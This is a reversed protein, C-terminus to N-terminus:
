SVFEAFMAYVADIEEIHAQLVKRENIGKILRTEKQYMQEFIERGQRLAERIEPSRTQKKERAMQDLRRLFAADIGKRPSEAEVDCACLIRATQYLKISAEVPKEFDFSWNYLENQIENEDEIVLYTEGFEQNDVEYLLGTSMYLFVRGVEIQIKSQSNAQQVAEWIQIHCEEIWANLPELNRHLMIFYRMYAELCGIEEQESNPANLYMVDIDTYVIKIDIGNVFKQKWAKMFEKKAQEFETQSFDKLYEQSCWQLMQEKTLLSGEPRYYAIFGESGSGVTGKEVLGNKLYQDLKDQYGQKGYLYQFERQNDRNTKWLSRPCLPPLEKLGFGKSEIIHLGNSNMVEEEYVKECREIKELAYPPVGCIVKIYSIHNRDNDTAVSIGNTKAFGTVAQVMSGVGAPVTIYSQGYWTNWYTSFDATPRALIAGNDMLQDCIKQVGTQIKDQGYYIGAFQELTMKELFAFEQELFGVLCSVPQFNEGSMWSEGQALIADMLAEARARRVDASPAIVQQDLYRRFQLTEQDESSLDLIQEIHVDGGAKQKMVSQYNEEVIEMLYTWVEAYRAIRKVFLELHEIIEQLTEIVKNFILEKSFMNFYDVQTEIYRRLIEKKAGGSFPGKKNRIQGRLIQELKDKETRENALTFIFDQASQIYENRLRKIFGDVVSEKAINGQFLSLTYLLGKEKLCQMYFRQIATALASATLARADEIADILPTNNNKYKTSIRTKLSGNIVDEPRADDSFDAASLFSAGKQQVGSYIDDFMDQSHLRFSQLAEAIDDQTASVSWITQIDKCAYHATYAMMQDLPLSIKGFGICNFNFVADKAFHSNKVANVSMQISAPANDMFSSVLFNNNDDVAGKVMNMVTDAVVRRSERDAATMKGGTEKEGTVLYCTDFINDTSNVSMDGYDYQFRDTGHLSSLVMYYNIEKLAAYANRQVRRMVPQKNQVDEESYTDPMMLYGSIKHNWGYNQCISRVIYPIDIITGSGTGGGIGAFIFIDIKRNPGPEMEQNAKSLKMNLANKVKIFGDTDFLLYRAAQRIGGAGNGTLVFGMKKNFWSTIRDPLNDIHEPKLLTAANQSYLQCIETNEASNSLGISGERKACLKNLAKEDTDIALFQMNAPAEYGSPFNFNKYIGAKLERVIEGGKGGLGIFLFGDGAANVRNTNQAFRLFGGGESFRLKDMIEKELKELAM